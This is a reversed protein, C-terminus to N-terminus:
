LHEDFGPWSVRRRSSYNAWNTGLFAETSWVLLEADTRRRKVKKRPPEVSSNRLDDMTPDEAVSPAKRKKVRSPIKSAILYLMRDDEQILWSRTETHKESLNAIREKAAGLWGLYSGNPGDTDLKFKIDIREKQGAEVFATAEDWTFGGHRVLYTILAFATRSNGHGCHLYVKHGEMGLIQHILDAAAIFSPIAQDSSDDVGHAMDSLDIAQLNGAGGKRQRNIGKRSGFIITGKTTHDLTGYNDGGEITWDHKRHSM